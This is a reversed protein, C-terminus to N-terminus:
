FKKRLEHSSKDKYCRSFCPCWCCWCWYFCCNKRLKNLQQSRRKTLWFINM